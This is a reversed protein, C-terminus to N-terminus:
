QVAQGSDAILAAVKERLNGADLPGAWNEFISGDTRIFYTSPMALVKFESVVEARETSGVPFTVGLDEVLALADDRDGLGTFPGIDLGFLVIEDLHEDYVAQFDPMEARCSPCLGAWMNLVVPKGLLLIESFQVNSGGLVSEGQYVSIAFDAPLNQAISEASTGGVSTAAPQESVADSGCAALVAGLLLLGAAVVGGRRSFVRRGFPARGGPAGDTGGPKEFFTRM